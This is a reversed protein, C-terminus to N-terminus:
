SSSGTAHANDASSPPGFSAGSVLVLAILAFGLESEELSRKGTM